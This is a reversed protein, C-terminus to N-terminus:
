PDYFYKPQPNLYEVLQASSKWDKYTEVDSYYKKYPKERSPLSRMDSTFVFEVNTFKRKMPLRKRDITITAPLDTLSM